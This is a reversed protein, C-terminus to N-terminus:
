SRVLVARPELLQECLEDILMQRAREVIDNMSPTRVFMDSARNRIETMTPMAPLDISRILQEFDERLTEAKEDLRHHLTDVLGAFEDHLERVSADLSARKEAMAAHLDAAIKEVQFSSALQGAAREIVVRRLKQESRVVHKPPTHLDWVLGTWSLAKLAYYSLDIEHWRFGQRAASQYHHHNNHWGEGFTLLALWWNNRSQDGTVYRRRGVVHALSNISFTAHWLVVTSWFFGVILGSWGAFLLVLVALLGPPLYAYRDLWVLEPYKSLDPVASMDTDRQRETFIWGLHSYWFGRRVPSHIDESTDSHRHHKRHNGAWWLVGSQASSQALFALIFAFIRSTKYSRHSFYRHYGATIAFMRVAYLGVAILLDIWHVGTFIAALCVVHALVFPVANGMRFRDGPIETQRVPQSRNIPPM